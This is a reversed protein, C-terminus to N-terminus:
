SPEEGLLSRAKELDDPTNVNIFTMLSPDLSRLDAADVYRTRAGDLLRRIRREQADLLNEIRDALSTSYVACLPELGQPLRPIVVDWDEGAFKLLCAVVASDLFPMDCAVCFTKPSPSRRLATLLGGLSGNGPRLDAHVPLGFSSYGEVDDGIIMIRDFLPRLRSITREMFSEGELELFAKNKKGMRLGKGGVLVAASVDM